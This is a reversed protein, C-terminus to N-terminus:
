IALGACIIENFENEDSIKTEIPQVIIEIGVKKLDFKSLKSADKETVLVPLNLKGARLLDKETYSYHDGFEFHTAIEVRKSLHEILPESNVIGTMLVIRSPLEAKEESSLNYCEKYNLVSFFVPANSYDHAKKEVEEDEMTPSKSVVILDARKAGARSERLSGVPMMWDKYFPKEFSSMLINLQPEISRHQFADDLLVVKLLPNHKKLTQVGLVRKECVAISIKKSVGYKTYFQMPEDGITEATAKSGALIFGKTSRGYGRSLVAIEEGSLGEQRLLLEILYEIMPSKGTGGVALNGVNIVYLDDFRVSKFLGNSYFVNRLYSSIWWILSVLGTIPLM